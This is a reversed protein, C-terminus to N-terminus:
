LYKEVDWFQGSALAKRISSSDIQQLTVIDALEDSAIAANLKESASAAPIWRFKLDIGTHEELASEVVGGPEPTTPMHLMAMWTLETPSEGDSSVESGCGTLALGAIALSAVSIGFK